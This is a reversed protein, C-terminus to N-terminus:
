NNMVDCYRPSRDTERLKAYAVHDRVTWHADLQIISATQTRHLYFLHQKQDHLWPAKSPKEEPDQQVRCQLTERAAQWAVLRVEVLTNGSKVGKQAVRQRPLTCSQSGQSLNAGRNRSRRTAHQHLPLTVCSVRVSSPVSTNMKRWFYVNERKRKLLSAFFFPFEKCDVM